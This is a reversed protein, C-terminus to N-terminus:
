TTMGLLEGGSPNIPYCKGKYGGHVLHLSFNFGWKAMNTSAGIIAVSRPNFLSQLKKDQAM